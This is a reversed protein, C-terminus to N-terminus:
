LVTRLGIPSVLLVVTFIKYYVKILLIFFIFFIVSDIIIHDLHIYEIPSELVVFFIIILFIFLYKIYINNDLLNRFKSPFMKGLFNASIILVLLFIIFLPFREILDIM